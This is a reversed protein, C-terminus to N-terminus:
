INNKLLNNFTKIKGVTSLTSQRLDFATDHGCQLCETFHTLNVCM